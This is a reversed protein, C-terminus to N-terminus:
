VFHIKLQAQTLGANHRAGLIEDLLAFEGCELREHEACVAPNTLMKAILEDHTMKAPSRKAM